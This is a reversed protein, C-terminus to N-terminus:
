QAVIKENEPMAQKLLTIEERNLVKEIDIILVVKDPLKGLGMLFEGEIQVDYGPTEIESTQINVVEAVTDVVLGVLRQNETVEIVIVCARDTYPMENMGFKLRLDM